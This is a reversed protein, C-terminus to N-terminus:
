SGRLATRLSSVWERDAAQRFPDADVLYLLRPTPRAECGGVYRVERGRCFEIALRSELADKLEKALLEAESASLGPGEYASITLVTMVGNGVRLVSRRRVLGGGAVIQAGSPRDYAMSFGYMWGRDRAVATLHGADQRRLEWSNAVEQVIEQAERMREPPFQAQYFVPPPTGCAGLAFCITLLPLTLSGCAGLRVASANRLSGNGSAHGLPRPRGRERRPRGRGLWPTAALARVGQGKPLEAVAM